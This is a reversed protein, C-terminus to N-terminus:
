KVSSLIMIGISDASLNQNLFILKGSHSPDSFSEDNILCITQLTYDIELATIQSAFLKRRMQYLEIYLFEGLIGQAPENGKDLRLTCLVELRSGVIGSVDIGNAAVNCNKRYDRPMRWVDCHKLHLVRAANPFVHPSSACGFYLFRRFPM